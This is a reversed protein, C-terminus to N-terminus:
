SHSDMADCCCFEKDGTSARRKTKLLSPSRLTKGRRQKESNRERESSRERESGRGGKSSGKIKKRLERGRRCERRQKKTKMKWWVKEMKGEEEDEKRM